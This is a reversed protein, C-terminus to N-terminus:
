AADKLGINDNLGLSELKKIKKSLSKVSAMLVGTTDMLNLTKGDGLGFSERFDEAYTGVHPETTLGLGGKYRWTEVPLKEVKELIVDEDILAKDTKLDRSSVADIGTLLGGVGGAVAGAGSLFSGLGGSSTTTQGRQFGPFPVSVGTALGLGLGGVNSQLNLRNTFAAQRLQDQFQSTAQALNQQGM